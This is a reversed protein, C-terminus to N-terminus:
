LQLRHLREGNKFVQLEGPSFPEWKEDTLPTTAVIYGCEDQYEPASFDFSFDSDRLHPAGHPPERHLVYLGKYGSRCHYAYTTHSEALLFNFEGWQNIRQVAKGLRDLNLEGEAFAHELLYLFAMESDTDGVPFRCPAATEALAARLAERNLNGNHAFVIDRGHVERCFPHTNKLADQGATAFRIHAVFNASVLPLSSVSQFLSSYHASIPEKILLAAHEQFLAVGWGSRNKYMPDGEVQLELGRLSFSATVPRDFNLGLLQCM